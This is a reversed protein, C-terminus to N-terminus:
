RRRTSSDTSVGLEQSARDATARLLPGLRRSEAATFMRGPLVLGIVAELAGDAGFVPAALAALGFIMQNITSAFGERRM